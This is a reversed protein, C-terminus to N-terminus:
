ITCTSPGPGAPSRCELNKIKLHLFKLIQPPPAIYLINIGWTGQDERDSPRPYILIIVRPPPEGQFLGFLGGGGYTPRAEEDRIKTYETMKSTLTSTLEILVASKKTGFM